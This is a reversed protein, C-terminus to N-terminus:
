ARYSLPVIFARSINTRSLSGPLHFLLALTAISLRLHSYEKKSGSKRLEPLVEETVWRRFRKAAAKRSKFVLHYLGSETVCLTKQKRGISDTLCVGDKEDDDLSDMADRSNKIGLVDCVDKAVFLPNSPTGTMRVEHGEFMQTLETSM